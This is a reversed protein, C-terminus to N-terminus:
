SLRAKELVADLRTAILAAPYRGALALIANTENIPRGCERLTEIMADALPDGIEINVRPLAELASQM